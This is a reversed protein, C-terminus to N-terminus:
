PPSPPAPPSAPLPPSPPLPPPLPSPTPTRSRGVSTSPALPLPCPPPAPFPPPSATAPTRRADCTLRLYPLPPAPMMMARPPPPPLPLPPAAARSCRSCRRNRKLMDGLARAGRVGIGNKWLHLTQLAPGGGGGDCGRDGAEDSSHKGGAAGGAAGDAAGDATEGRRVLPGAAERADALAAAIAKVGDCGLNNQGLELAQLRPPCGRGAGAGDGAAGAGAGASEGGVGRLAKAIEAGGTKGLNCDYLSLRQLPLRKAGRLMRSLHRCGTGGLSANGWLNLSLLRSNAHMAAAIHEAGAAGVCKRSLDLHTLGGEDARLRDLADRLNEPPASAPTPAQFPDAAPKPLPPKGMLSMFLSFAPKAREPAARPALESADEAEDGAEDEVEAEAKEDPEPEVQEPEPEPEPERHEAKAGAKAEAPGAKAEPKPAAAATEAAKAQAQREERAQKAVAIKAAKEKFAENYTKWVPKKVKDYGFEETFVFSTDDLEDHARLYKLREWPVPGQSGIEHSDKAKGWYWYLQIKPPPRASPDRAEKSSPRHGQSKEAAVAGYPRWNPKSNADTGFDDTYVLTEDGIEGSNRVFRVRDWPLPGQRGADTFYWFLQPKRAPPTNPKPEALLPM